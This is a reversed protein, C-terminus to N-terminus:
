ELRVQMKGAPRGLLDHLHPGMKNREREVEHCSVCKKFVTEGHLPDGGAFAATFAGLSMLFPAVTTLLFRTSRM